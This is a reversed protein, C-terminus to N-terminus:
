VSNPTKTYVKVENVQSQYVESIKRKLFARRDNYRCIAQAVKAMQDAWAEEKTKAEM